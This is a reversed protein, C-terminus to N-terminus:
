HLGTSHIFPLIFSHIFFLWWVRNLARLISGPQEPNKSLMRLITRRNCLFFSNAPHLHWKERLCHFSANQSNDLIDPDPRISEKGWGPRRGLPRTNIQFLDTGAPPCTNWACGVHYPQLGLDQVLEAAKFNIAKRTKRTPVPHKGAFPLMAQPINGSFRQIEGMNSM